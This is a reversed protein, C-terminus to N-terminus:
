AKYIKELRAITDDRDPFRHRLTKFDQTLVKKEDASLFMLIMDFRQVRSLTELVSVPHNQEQPMAAATHAIELVLDSTLSYDLLRPLRDLPIRSLYASRSASDDRTSKWGTEFEYGTSPIPLPRSATGLAERIAQVDIAKVATNDSAKGTQRPGPLRRPANKPGSAKRTPVGSDELPVIKPRESEMTTESLLADKPLLAQLEKLKERSAANHPEIELVAQLDIAAELMKGLEVRAQARRHLAKVLISPEVAVDMPGAM